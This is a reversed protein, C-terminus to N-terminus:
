AHLESTNLINVTNHLWGHKSSKIMESLFETGMLCYNRKGGGGWGRTVEVTSEERHIQRRKQSHLEAHPIKTGHDSNIRARATFAGLRVM